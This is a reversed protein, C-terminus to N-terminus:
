MILAWLWDEGRALLWATCHGGLLHYRVECYQHPRAIHCDLKRSWIPRTVSFYCACSSGEISDFEHSGNFPQVTPVNKVRAERMRRSGNNYFGVSYTSNGGFTGPPAPESNVIWLLRPMNKVCCNYMEEASYIAACQCNKM